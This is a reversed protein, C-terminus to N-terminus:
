WWKKRPIAKVYFNHHPNKKERVYYERDCNPNPCKVLGEKIGARLVFLAHCDICEHVEDGPKLDFQVKLKKGEQFVRYKENCRDCAITSHNSFFIHNGCCKCPFHMITGQMDVSTPVNDEVFVQQIVAGLFVFYVTAYGSAFLLEFWELMMKKRGLRKSEL